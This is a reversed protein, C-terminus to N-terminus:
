EDNMVDEAYNQVEVWSIGYDADHNDRLRRLVARAQDNTLAPVQAQVDERTWIIAIADGQAVAHTHSLFLNKEYDSM